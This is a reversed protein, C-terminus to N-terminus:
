ILTSWYYWFRKLILLIIILFWVVMVDGHHRRLFAVPRKIKPPVQVHGEDINYLSTYWFMPITVAWLVMCFLCLAGIRYLTQFQLWTLFGVAFLLGANILRWFWRKFTAGALLAAGVTALIAYGPLGIIENPIGFAGAQRSTM